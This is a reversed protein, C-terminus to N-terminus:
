GRLADVIRTGAAPELDVETTELLRAVTMYYGIALVLEVVEQDSLQKRVADFTAESAKVNEVVETTFALVARELADFCDGDISGEELAQIQAASVGVSEAIPVHQVWEYRARSLQAVRLIALERLKPALRQHALISTGLRLLPRFCTEAHAMMKFVNLQRPMRELVERVSESASEPEVYPLRAM